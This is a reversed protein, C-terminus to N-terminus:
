RGSPDRPEGLESFNTIAVNVDPFRATIELTGGLAEVYRRLNSVYMDTRREMKAVAPQGVHLAAALDEQSKERAQRLEHLAMDRLMTQAAEANRAQREASLHARLEKFPRRGTM